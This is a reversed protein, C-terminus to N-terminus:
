DNRRLVFGFSTITYREVLLKLHVKQEYPPLDVYKDEPLDGTFFNMPLMSCGIEFCRRQLDVFDKRRYLSLGSSEMTEEDSSVNLETTHVAIGGPKVCRMANLVFAFGAELSGLHELACCSWVFDFGGLDSPIANMDVSRFSVLRRFEQVSCVGEYFLEMVDRSGWHPDSVDMPPIDTVVLGVGYKAMVAALPEKGCGFGLGIRGAKLLDFQEL